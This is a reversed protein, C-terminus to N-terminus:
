RDWLKISFIISKFKRLGNVNKIWISGFTIRLFNIFFSSFNYKQSITKQAFEQALIKCPIIFIKLNNKSTQCCCFYRSLKKPFRFFNQFSQVVFKELFKRIKHSKWFLIFIEINQLNEFFFDFNRYKKSKWSCSKLIEVNKPPNEM